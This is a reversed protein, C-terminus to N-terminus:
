RAAKLTLLRAVNEDTKRVDALVDALNLNLAHALAAWGQGSRRASLVRDLAQERSLKDRKMLQRCVALSATMEGYGVNRARVDNVLNAPVEFHKAVVQAVRRGGDPGTAIIRASDADLKKQEAWLQESLQREAATLTAAPPKTATAAPPKTATAAPPKTAMSSKAPTLAVPQAVAVVPPAEARAVVQPAPPPLVSPAQQPLQTTPTKQVLQPQPATMAQSIAKATPPPTQAVLLIAATGALVAAAGIGGAWYRIADEDHM